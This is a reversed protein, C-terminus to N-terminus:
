GKMFNELDGIAEDVQKRAAPLETYVRKVNAVNFALEELPQGKKQLPFVAKDDWRWGLTCVTLMEISRQEGKEVTPIEDDKGRKKNFHARRLEENISDRLYDKFLTSDKGAVTVFIGLGAGTVPHKLEIEAGEDCASSTDLCSMDVVNKKSM